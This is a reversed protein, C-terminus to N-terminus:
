DTNYTNPSSLDVAGNQRRLIRKTLVSTPPPNSIAVCMFMAFNMKCRDEFTETYSNNQLFIDKHLHNAPPNEHYYKFFSYISRQSKIINCDHTLVTVNYLSKCIACYLLHFSCNISHIIVTEVNYIFNCGQAPCLIRRHPCEFMEHHHITELPYSKGCRAYICILKAKKFMRMSLSNPRKHKEVKYSYIEDLSCSQQCIPCPFIKEFM